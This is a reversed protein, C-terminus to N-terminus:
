RHWGRIIDAYYDSRAYYKANRIRHKLSKRYSGYNRFVLKITVSLGYRAISIRLAELM